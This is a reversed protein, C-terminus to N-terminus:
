KGWKTQFGFGLVVEEKGRTAWQWCRGRAGKGKRRAAMGGNGGAGREGGSQESQEASTVGANGGFEFNSTIKKQPLPEIVQLSM